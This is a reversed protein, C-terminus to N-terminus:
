YIPMNIPKLKLEDINNNSKRQTVEKKLNEDEGKFENYIEIKKRIKKPLENTSINDM